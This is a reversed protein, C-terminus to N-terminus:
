GDANGLLEEFRHRFEELAADESGDAVHGKDMQFAQVERIFHDLDKTRTLSLEPERSGRMRALYSAVLTSLGGLISTTLGVRQPSVVSSLGTVLAGLVVQLGIAGNLAYGNISAKREYKAKDKIAHDLTPQIREGATRARPAINVARAEPLMWDQNATSQGRVPQPQRPPEALRYTGAANYGERGRTVSPAQSPGVPVSSRRAPPDRPSALGAQMGQPGEQTGEATTFSMPRSASARFTRDADSKVPLPPPTRTIQPVSPQVQSGSAQPALTPGQPSQQHQGSLQPPAAETPSATLQEVRDM